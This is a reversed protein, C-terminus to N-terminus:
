EQDSPPLSVAGQHPHPSRPVDSRSFHRLLADAEAEAGDEDEGEGFPARPGTSMGRTRDSGDLRIAKEYPPVM